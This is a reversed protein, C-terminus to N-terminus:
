DGNNTKAQEVNAVPYIYINAQTNYYRNNTSDNTWTIKNGTLSYSNTILCTNLSKSGLEVYINLSNMVNREGFCGWVSNINNSRMYMNGHINFCSYYAGMNVSWGGLSTVNPGCVATTLNTCGFYTNHMSIVNPGCVATTLNTCNWCMGCEYRDNGMIRISNLMDGKLELTRLNKMNFFANVFIEQDSIPGGGIVIKTINPYQRFNIM